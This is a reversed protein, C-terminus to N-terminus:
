RLQRAITSSFHPPKIAAARQFRTFEGVEDDEVAIWHGHWDALDVCCLHQCGVDSALLHEGCGFSGCFSRGPPVIAHRDEM